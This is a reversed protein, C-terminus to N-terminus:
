EKMKCCAEIVRNMGEKIDILPSWGLCKLKENSLFSEKCKEKFKYSNDIEKETVIVKNDCFSIMADIVYNLTIFEDGGLNYIEGNKGRALLIFIGMVIDLIYTYQILADDRFIEINNCNIISRLLRPIIRSDNEMDYCPGYTHSIRSAIIPVRYQRWFCRCMEEAMRKSESYCAENSRNDFICDDNESLIGKNKGGGM